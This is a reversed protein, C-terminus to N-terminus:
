SCKQCYEGPFNILFHYFSSCIICFIKVFAGELIRRFDLELYEAEIKFCVLDMVAQKKCLAAGCAAMFTQTGITTYISKYLHLAHAFCVHRV